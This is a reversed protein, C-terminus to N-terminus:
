EPSDMLRRGVLDFRSGSEARTYDHQGGPPGARYDYFHVNGRGIIDAKSGQVVLATAEDIGIGLLQPYRLMLSTLDPQRKRQTFHQDVAVGPLFGLGREYGDAMMDTNGLPSGRPMYQSQISAGASSGGIVGGRRLVGRFLEEAKTGMYADVFRWQRGGSFWVGKAENLATSFEPADIESRHRARLSRVNTAGARTLLSTDRSSDEPLPGEAAIPLVVIPANSGGALEIFKQTIEAPLTGGGVIVLAGSEVVPPPAVQPPFNVALRELAARRLMTWDHRAGGGLELVRLPRGASAALVLSVVSDGLVHLQRGSIIVSMGPDIAMGVHDPRASLAAVLRDRRPGSFPGPILIAELLEPLDALIKDGSEDSASLYIAQPENGGTWEACKVRVTDPLAEGGFVVVTGHVPEPDIWPFGAFAEDAAGCRAAMLLVLIASTRRIIMLM